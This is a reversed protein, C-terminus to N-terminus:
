KKKNKLFWEEYNFIGTDCGNFKDIVHDQYESIAKMILINVEKESYMGKTWHEKSSTSAAGIIFISKAIEIDIYIGNKPCDLAFETATEKINELSMIM